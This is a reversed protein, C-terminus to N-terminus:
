KPPFDGRLQQANTDSVVTSHPASSPTM